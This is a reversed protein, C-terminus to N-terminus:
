VGFTGVLGGWGYKDYGGVSEWGGGGVGGDVELRVEV